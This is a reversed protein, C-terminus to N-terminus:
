TKYQEGNETKESFELKKSGKAPNLDFEACMEHLNWVNRSKDILFMLKSHNIIKFCIQKTKNLADDVAGRVQMLKVSPLSWALHSSRTSWLESPRPAIVILPKRLQTASLLYVGVWHHLACFKATLSQSSPCDLM